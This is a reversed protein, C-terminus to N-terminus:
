FKKQNNEIEEFAKNRWKYVTRKDCKLSEAVKEWSMGLIYYRTLLSRYRKNDISVIIKRIEKRLEVLEDIEANIQNEIDAIEPVSNGIKDSVTGSSEYRKPPPTIKTAISIWRQREELLDNISNNLDRYHNLYEQANM